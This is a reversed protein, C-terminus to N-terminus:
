KKGGSKENGGAATANSDPHSRIKSGSRTKTNRQTVLLNATANSNKKESTKQENSEEKNRTNSKISSGDFGLNVLLRNLEHLAKISCLGKGEEFGHCLAKDTMWEPVHIVIGPSAEV